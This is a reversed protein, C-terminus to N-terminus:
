RKKKMNKMYEDLLKGVLIFSIYLLPVCLMVVFIIKLVTMDADERFLMANCKLIVCFGTSNSPNKQSDKPNKKIFNREFRMIRSFIM